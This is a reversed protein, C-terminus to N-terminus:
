KKEVRFPKDHGPIIIDAIKEIREFSQMALAANINIRPPVRKIYNDRTPIADGAIVAIENSGFVVSVHGDTHGPTEIIKIRNSIARYPLVGEMGERAIEKQHAYKKCIFKNNCGTHDGHLHTNIVAKVEEKLVGATKLSKKIVQWDEPMATDVIVPYEDIILVSSSSAYLVDGCQSRIVKGEKLIYLGEVLEM